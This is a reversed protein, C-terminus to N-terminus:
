LAGGLADVFRVETYGLSLLMGTLARRASGLARERLALSAQAEREFAVRALELLQATEASDLNSSIIETEAPRVEARIQLPPLKIRLRRGHIEMTRGDLGSLDVGAHITGFVIARGHTPLLNFKAWALVDGWVSGTPSPDPAYTIKKYVSVELTELRAVDRMREIVTPADPLTPARARGSLAM